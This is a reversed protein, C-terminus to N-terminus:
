LFKWFDCKAPKQLFSASPLCCMAEQMTFFFFFLLSYLPIFRKHAHQLPASAPSARQWCTNVWAPLTRAFCTSATKGVACSTVRACVCVRDHAKVWKSHLSCSNRRNREQYGRSLPSRPRGMRHTPETHFLQPSRFGPWLGKFWSFVARWKSEWLRWMSFFNPSAPSVESLDRQGQTEFWPESFDQIFCRWGVPQLTMEM